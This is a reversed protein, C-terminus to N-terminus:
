KESQLSEQLWCRRVVSWSLGGADFGGGCKRAMVECWVGDEEGVGVMAMVMVAAAVIAVDVDVIGLDVVDAAIGDDDGDDDSSCTAVREGVVRAPDGAQDADNEM